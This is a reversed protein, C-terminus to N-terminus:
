HIGDSLGLDKEEYQTRIQLTSSDTELKEQSRQYNQEEPADIANSLRNMFVPNLQGRM